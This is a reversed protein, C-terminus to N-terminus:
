RRRPLPSLSVFLSLSLDPNTDSFQEIYTYIYVCVLISFNARAFPLKEVIYFNTGIKRSYLVGNKGMKKPTLLSMVFYCSIYM